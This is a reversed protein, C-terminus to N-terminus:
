NSRPWANWLLWGWAITLAALWALALLMLTPMSDWLRDRWTCPVPGIIERLRASDEESLTARVRTV